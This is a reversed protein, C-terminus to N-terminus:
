KEKEYVFLGQKIYNYVVRCPMNIMFAATTRPRRGRAQWCVAKKNNAAEILQEITKIRTNM